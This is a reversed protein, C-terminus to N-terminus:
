RHDRNMHNTLARESGFTKGCSNCQNRPATAQPKLTLLHQLYQHDPCFTDQVQISDCNPWPSADVNLGITPDAEEADKQVDQGAEEADDEQVDQNVEEAPEVLDEHAPLEDDAQVATNSETVNAFSDPSANDAANEAAARARAEERRARRRLRAPGPKRPQTPKPQSPPSSSLNLHFNIWAQGAHCNLYLRADKGAKWCTEFNSLLNHLVDAM